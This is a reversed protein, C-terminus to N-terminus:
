TYSDIISFCICGPFDWLMGNFKLWIRTDPYIHADFIACFINPLSEIRLINKPLEASSGPIVSGIAGKIKALNQELVGPLAMGEIDPMVDMLLELFSPEIKQDNCFLGNMEDTVGIAASQTKSSTSSEMNQASRERRRRNAEELAEFDEDALGGGLELGEIEMEVEELTSSTTQAHCRPLILVLVAVWLAWVALSPRM